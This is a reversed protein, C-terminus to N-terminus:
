RSRVLRVSFSGASSHCYKDGHLLRELVQLSIQRYPGDEV